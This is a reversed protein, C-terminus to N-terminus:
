RHLHCDAPSAEWRSVGSNPAKSTAYYENPWMGISAVPTTGLVPAIDLRTGLTLWALARVVERYPLNAMEEIEDKSTPRDDASLHTGPTLPTAVTTANTLNFRM